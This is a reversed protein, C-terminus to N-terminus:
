RENKIFSKLALSSFLAADNKTTEEPKHFKGFQISQMVANIVHLSRNNTLKQAFSFSRDYAEKKPVIEDIVKLDYAKQATIMDGNLVLELTSSKGTLELLRRIGGLGPFLDQNVEPFAFLAKEEAIRIDCALAIELGAGFCVGSIAAIVPINLDDIYNLLENGKELEHQFVNVKEIQAKMANLNAGASFHRGTGAIILAKIGSDVFSKLEGIGIFEPHILYNEPPNNLLLIGIDGERKLITKAQSEM